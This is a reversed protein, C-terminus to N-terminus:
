IGLDPVAVGFGLSGDGVEDAGSDSPEGGEEPAAPATALDQAQAVLQAKTQSGDLVVGYTTSCFEVIQAKTMAEFDPAETALLAEGGELEGEGPSPSLDVPPPLEEPTPPPDGGDEKGLAGEPAAPEVDEPELEGPEEDESEEGEPGSDVSWGQRAWGEAHVPFVVRDEEGTKSVRLMGPPIPRGPGATDVQPM